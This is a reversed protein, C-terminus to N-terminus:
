RRRDHEAHQRSTRQRLSRRGRKTTAPRCRLTVSSATAKRATCTRSSPRRRSRASRGAPRRRATGRARGASRARARRARRRGRSASTASSGAARCPDAQAAPARHVPERVRRPRDREHVREAGAAVRLGAPQEHEARRCARRRRRRRAAPAASRRRQPRVGGRPARLLAPARARREEDPVLAPGRPRSPARAPVGAESSAPPLDAAAVAALRRDRRHLARSRRRRKRVGREGARQRLRASSRPGRRGHLDVRATRRCDRARQPDRELAHRAVSPPTDIVALPTANAAAPVGRRGRAADDPEVPRVDVRSTTASASPRCRESASLSSKSSRRVTVPTSPPSARRTCRSSPRDGAHRTARGRRRM